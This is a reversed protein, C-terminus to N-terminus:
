LRCGYDTTYLANDDKACACQVGHGIIPQHMYMYVAGWGM